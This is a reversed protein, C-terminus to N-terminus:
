WTTFDAPLDPAADEEIWLYVDSILTNDSSTGIMNITGNVSDGALPIEVTVTPSTIDGTIQLNATGYNDVTGARFKVTQSGDIVTFGAVGDTLDVSYYNDGLPVLDVMTIADIYNDDGNPDLEVTGTGGMGTVYVEITTTSGLGVYSGQAPQTIQIIPAFSSVRFAVPDSTKATTYIDEVRLEMQYDGDSLAGTYTWQNGSIAPAIWDIVPTDVLPNDAFDWIAIELTAFNVGDDDTVFGSLRQPTGLVNVSPDMSYSPSIFIFEPNDSNPNVSIYMEEGVTTTLRLTDHSVTLEPRPTFPNIQYDSENLDEVNPLNAPDIASTLIDDFHYFYNNANGSYDQASVFLYYQGNLGGDVIESDFTHYWSSTGTATAQYIVLRTSDDYLFIEVDQVRTTDAADGKITINKNFEEAIGYHAPVTVLVTPPNNDVTLLLKASVIKDTDDKISIIFEHDGDSLGTSDYSFSWDEGNLAASGVVNHITTLSINVYVIVGDDIATGTLTFFVGVADGNRHSSIELQPADLDVKEGLGATFPNSCTSLVLVTILLTLAAAGLILFKKM